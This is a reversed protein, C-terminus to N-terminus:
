STTSTEMYNKKLGSYWGCVLDNFVLCCVTHPAIRLFQASTGKYLGTFGESKVTKYICDIPNKYFQGVTKGNDLKTTPQNYMRTLAVDPPQMMLCVCAGSISSSLIFNALSNPEFIGNSSFYTKAAIYTPLQVSSGMCTRLIAADIGRLLGTLGEVRVVSLLADLGHRYHHQTGVPLSPSYAQMRAKILYFPNGSAAGMMGSAIGAGVSTTTVNKEAPLGAWANLQRRVPEYFGLRCGNLATQYVYSTGLGRQLGRIGEHKYTKTFVEGVNNYVKVGQKSLEGQLQLRTKAVEMPNSLTFAASQENPLPSDLVVLQSNISHGPELKYFTHAVRFIPSETDLGIFQFDDSSISGEKASGSSDVIVLDDGIEEWGDSDNFDKIQNYESSLLRSSRENGELLGKMKKDGSRSLHRFQVFTDINKELWQEVDGKDRALWQSNGKVADLGQNLSSSYKSTDRHKFFDEVEQVDNPQALGDFSFSILRGLSFNGELRKELKELNDKTYQWLKRRSVPNNRLAVFPYMLDQNKFGHEIYDFTKNILAEDRTSGLALMAAIKHMPTPPNPNKVIELCKNWEAEGGHKVAQAYIVRLLDNPILSDDDKELLPQFRRKIEKVVDADNAAAASGISLERLQLTDPSDGKQNDFGLQQVLPSFLKRRLANIKERVPSSEECWVSALNALSTAISSWVLYEKENKLQNIFGLAGSTPGNGAKALVFADNVLGIRDNLSFSSHPKAAELGLKTLREPSYLVRYVGATEANLKWNSSAVDSLAFEAERKNLAASRDINDGQRIFLPVHWETENEEATPKGTSLFRDQRVQIGNQNEKVTLVPFGQKLTWPDMIAQVDIGAAEAIGNWLDQTEANGYLHKKLYISVGKLFTEEGVMNSLMRLVSGGKSYSIADFIQNIMAPDKVPVQIPHSSKLADLDLARHLHQTIFESYVKWEPRIRDIVIIEGVLTAFAENLWLGHWDAMTVVNGFWQHSVEHSQVGVVRKEADLGSLKEDYLYVSTRGTILGWNEMAGADFDNAVLTDLKPLPYEIDFIKEYLPLVQAKADLGLKAQSILDPTAYIRLPRVQGSIPSKYSSELHKFHGNAWAVLYSSILPTTDFKTVVWEEPNVAGSHKSYNFTDVTAPSSHIPPMNSLAVTDKRHIISIDYTAKLIPEDLCPFSKRAATPEHQTLAYYVDKDGQKYSSRYYGMMSDDLTSSFSISLVVDDGQNLKFPLSLNLRELKDDFSHSPTVSQQQKLANSALSLSHVKINKHSHLSISDTSEKVQFAIDVSGDYNCDVLDSKLKLNYNVPKLSKPLRFESM